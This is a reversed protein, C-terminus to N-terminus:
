DLAGTERARSVAGTRTSVGLKAFLNKLHFKVTNESAGLRRGIEKNTRGDSLLRLVERERPTLSSRGEQRGGDTGALAQKVRMRVTESIDPAACLRALCTTTQPGEEALLGSYDPLFVSYSLDSLLAAAEAARGQEMAARIGLTRIEVLRPATLRESQMSLLWGLTPEAMEPAGALLEERAQLLAPVPGRLRGSLVNRAKDRGAGPGLGCLAAFRRAERLEGEALLVRVREADCLDLLRRLGRRGATARAADIARHAEAPRREILALRLRTTLGAALIDFWTDHQEVHPLAWALREDVGRVHGRMLTLESLLVHGIAHIDSGAGLHTEADRILVEYVAEAGAADGAFHRAQGIHIHQHLAGFEAGSDKLCRLSQEGYAIATRLRGQDLYNFCLLNLLLGRHVMGLDHQAALDDELETLEAASLRSDDYLSILAHAMRCHRATSADGHGAATARRLYHRASQLQGTKAHLIALGLTTLPYRDLDTRDVVDSLRRFISMGGKATLYILRWGGEAEVLKLALDPDTRLLAHRVSTLIDGQDRFWSAARALAIDGDRGERSAMQLLFKRLIPHYRLWLGAPDQVFVPLGRSALSRFTDRAAPDGTVAAALDASVAPLPATACLLHYVPEPLTAIVRELLYQSLDATGGSFDKWIDAGNGADAALLYTMTLAVPWGETQAHLREARAQASPPAASVGFLDCTEEPTFRLRDTAIERLQGSLQLQMLPFAPRGRSALVIRLAEFARESCMRFVLAETEDTQAAHYDDLFLVLDRDLGGSTRALVNTLEACSLADLDGMERARCLAIDFARILDLRFRHPDSHEEELSLWAAAGGAKRVARHWQACLSTKGYGAPASVVTLKPQPRTGVDALLRTRRIERWGEEPPAYRATDPFRAIFGERFATADVAVDERDSWAWYAVM